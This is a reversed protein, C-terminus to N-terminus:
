EARLRLEPPHAPDLLDASGGRAAELRALWDRAMARAAEVDWRGVSAPFGVLNAGALRFLAAAPQPRGRQLHVFAGALQILGKYLPGRAKHRQRLWLPELVDHAEFFLQRNFCDLYGQCAAEADPAASPRRKAPNPNM